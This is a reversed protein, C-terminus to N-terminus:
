HYITKLHEPLSEKPIAPPVVYRIIKGDIVKQVQGTTLAQIAIKRAAWFHFMALSMKKKTKESHPIGKNVAKKGLNAKSINMRHEVSLPVGKLKSRLDANKTM